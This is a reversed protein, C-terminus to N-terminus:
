GWHRVNFSYEDSKRQMLTTALLEIYSCFLVCDIIFSIKTIIQQKMANFRTENKMQDKRRYVQTIKKNNLKCM